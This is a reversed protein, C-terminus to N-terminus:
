CAGNFCQDLCPALRLAQMTDVAKGNKMHLVHVFDIIAASKMERSLMSLMQKYALCRSISIVQVKCIRLM